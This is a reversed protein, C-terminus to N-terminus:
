KIIKRLKWWRFGFFGATGLVSLSGISILIIAATGLGPEPTPEPEPAPESILVEILDSTLNLSAGSPLASQFTTFLAAYGTTTHGTMLGTTDLTLEPENVIFTYTPMLPYTNKNPSALSASLKFADSEGIIYEFQYQSLHIRNFTNEIYSIFDTTIGNVGYNYYTALMPFENLTWPWVTIGRHVLQNIFDQTLPGYNPNLTANIPIISSIMNLMSLEVSQANLVSSNLWGNAMEPYIENFKRINQAGFAIIVSQDYMDEEEIVLKVQEVLLDNTPKLEIFVVVDQGKVAQLFERLTPIKIDTSGNLHDRLYLDKLQPLFSNAITIPEFDPATRATSNDHMVIVEFDLTIHVDIELIDAGRLIAEHASEITNEPAIGATGGTYLARHAIMMPRRVHTNEPFTAYIDFLGEYDPTLIGNAGSLIAKYHSQISGNTEVWVTMLRQQMYEVLDRNLLDIPLLSAVATARNTEKRIEILDEYTLSTKDELDFALVGRLVSHAERAALIVEKDKSIIFADLILNNRILEAAQVAIVEDNSYIAPIVKGDLTILAELLPTIVLGTDSVVDLNENVRMIATAPRPDLVMSSLDAMSNVFSLSTAPAVIGTEPEYVDVVKTFPYKEATVYSEPLTIRINDYFVTVSDAQVGIAGRSREFMATYEILETDNIYEKVSTEYVDLKLQYTKAPDLAETYSATIPVNWAGPTRKAFEVGDPLSADQRIAMQYYNETDYRFLVSTWRRADNAQTMRMDTEIIYNSFADLYSPFLVITQPSIQLRENNIAASGGTAGLNNFMRLGQPLAGNPVGSFDAEYLVYDTESSLKTIFNITMSTSSYTLTVPFVGKESITISTSTISVSPNTSSLTAESMQIEGFSGEVDVMTLDLVENVDLLVYNREQTVKFNQSQALSTSPNFFGFMYSLAILLTLVTIKKKM